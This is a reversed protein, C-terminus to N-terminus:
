EPLINEFLGYIFPNCKIMEFKFNSLTVNSKTRNWVFIKLEADPFDELNIKSIMQSLVITNTYPFNNFHKLEAGSWNISTDKQHLDFVLIPNAATDATTIDISMNVIYHEYERCFDKLKVIFNPCYDQTSDITIESLGQYFSKITDNAFVISTPHEFSKNSLVITETIEQKPKEKSFCYSSYTFGEDKFCIYPYKEKIIALYELPLNGTIFCDTNQAHVFTRFAKNDQAKEYQNFYFYYFSRQYKKFYIDSFEPPLFLYITAKAPNKIEDLVKYTDTVMKEFPQKYFVMYHKREFVLSFTGAVLILLISATVFTGKMERFLSFLFILLFPFAFILVSFQLVPNVKISYYYGTLFQIFFWVLAIIRFKQYGRQKNRFVISLAILLFALLYMWNSFNFLYEFYILLWDPRPKGLWGDLGGIGGMNLQTFFIELHPIYLAFVCIGAILYGKFTNKKIFFIGTVGVTAAFLLAFYHDYACMASFIIYGALWKTKSTNNNFLYNTWCWVMLISFFMGSIYPRAIQSYMVMYQMVAMYASALLGITSNFWFKSIKFVYYISLVGMIIFPSKVVMESYGFCKTWYYLFIQIGVPHTDSHASKNIVDFINNFNTRALASLEDAMYPLNPFNWFRLITAVLLIIFLFFYDRHKYFFHKLMLYILINAKRLLM